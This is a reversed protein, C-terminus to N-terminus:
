VLYKPVPRGERKAIAIQKQHLRKIVSGRKKENTEGKSVAKQKRSAVRTSQPKAFAELRNQKRSLSQDTKELPITHNRIMEKTEQDFGNRTKTIMKGYRDLIIQQVNRGYHQHELLYFQFGNIIVDDTVSWEGDLGHVKYNVTDASVVADADHLSIFGSIRHITEGGVYYCSIEGDRNLVLVDSVQIKEKIKRYLDFAQEEQNLEEVWLLQYFEIKVPYKKERVYEYPQKWLQKGYTNQNVRYCAYQNTM